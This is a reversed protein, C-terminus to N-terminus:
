WRDALRGSRRQARALRRVTRSIRRLERAPPSDRRWHESRAALPGVEIAGTEPDTLLVARLSQEVQSRVERLSAETAQTPRDKSPMRLEADLEAGLTRLQAILQRRRRSLGGVLAFASVAVVVPAAVMVVAPGALALWGARYIAVVAGVGLAAVLVLVVLPLLGRVGSRRVGPPHILEDPLTSSPQAPQAGAWEAAYDREALWRLTRALAVLEAAVPSVMSWTLSARLATMGLADQADRWRGARALPAAAEVSLIAADLAEDDAGSARDQPPAAREARLGQVLLTFRDTAPASLPEM